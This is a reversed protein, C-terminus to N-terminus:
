RMEAWADLLSKDGQTDMRCICQLEALVRIYCTGPRLHARVCEFTLFDPPVKHMMTTDQCKLIFQVHNFAVDSALIAKGPILTLTLVICACSTFFALNYSHQIKM